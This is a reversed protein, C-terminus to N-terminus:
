RVMQRGIIGDAINLFLDVKDAPISAGSAINHGGGRGGVRKASISTV